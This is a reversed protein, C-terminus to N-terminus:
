SGEREKMGKFTLKKKLSQLLGGEQEYEKQLKM